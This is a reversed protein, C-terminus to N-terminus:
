SSTVSSSRSVALLVCWSARALPLFTQELVVVDIRTSFFFVGAFISCTCLPHRRESRQGGGGGGGGSVEKGIAATERKACYSGPLNNCIGAHM